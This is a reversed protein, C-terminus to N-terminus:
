GLSDVGAEGLPKQADVVSGLVACVSAMVRAKVTDPTPVAAGSSAEAATRASTQVDALQLFESYFKDGLRFRCPSAPM